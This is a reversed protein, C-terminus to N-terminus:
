KPKRTSNDGTTKKWVVNQKQNVVATSHKSMLLDANEAKISLVSRGNKRGKIRWRRVGEVVCRAHVRFDREYSSLGEM